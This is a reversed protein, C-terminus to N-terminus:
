KARNILQTINGNAINVILALILALLVNFCLMYIPISGLKRERDDLLNRANLWKKLILNVIICIFQVIILFAVIVMPQLSRYPNDGSYEYGAIYLEEFVMIASIIISVASITLFIKRIITEKSGKPGKSSSKCALKHYRM